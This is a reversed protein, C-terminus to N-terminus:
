ELSQLLSKAQTSINALLTIDDAYDADTITQTSYRRSRVKKQTLGYEKRLDILTRLVYDLRVIFLYLALTDEQLVVDFIDSEM